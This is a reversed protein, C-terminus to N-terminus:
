ASPRGAIAVSVTALLVEPLVPKPLFENCGAVLAAARDSPFVRGSIAIIATRSTRSDQRLRRVVDLEPEGALDIVIIPSQASAAIEFAESADCTIVAAYGGHRLVEAYLEQEDPLCSILLVAGSPQRAHWDREVEALCARLEDASRGTRREV